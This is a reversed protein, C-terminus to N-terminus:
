RSRGLFADPLPRVRGRDWDRAWGGLALLRDLLGATFGWIFLGSAEFAPSLWDHRPSRVMFRNAPDALEAVPVLGIRAVERPDGPRLVSVLEPAWWALVPTVLFGSPPIWLQPLLAAVRVQDAPLGVEEEAERLATATRDADGADVGGGPFAVQGAHTRMDVARELLLVAPGAALETFSVLVASPRGSGDEPPLAVSLDGPGIGEIAQVLPQLWGPEVRDAVSGAGVAQALPPPQAVDAGPAPESM